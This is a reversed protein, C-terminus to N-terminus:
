IGSYVLFCGRTIMRPRRVQPLVAMHIGDAPGIGQGQQKAHQTTKQKDKKFFQIESMILKM